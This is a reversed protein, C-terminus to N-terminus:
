GDRSGLEVPKRSKLCKPPPAPIDDPLRKVGGSPAERGKVPIALDAAPREASAPTTEVEAGAEATKGADADAGAKAEAERSAVLQAVTMKADMAERILDAKALEAYIAKEMDEVSLDYDPDLTPNIVQASTGGALAEPREAEEEEKQKAAIKAIAEEVIADVKKEATSKGAPTLGATTPWSFVSSLKKAPLAGRKMFSGGRQRVSEGADSDAAAKSRREKAIQPSPLSRAKRVSADLEKTRRSSVGPKSAPM